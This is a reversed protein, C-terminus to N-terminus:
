TSVLVIDRDLSYSADAIARSGHTSVQLCTISIRYMHCQLNKHDYHYFPSIKLRIIEPGHTGTITLAVYVGGTARSVHSMVLPASLYVMLATVSCPKWLDQEVRSVEHTSLLRFQLWVNLM